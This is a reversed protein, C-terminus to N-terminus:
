KIKENITQVMKTADVFGSARHIPKSLEDKDVFIITPYYKIKYYLFFKKHEPNDEDYIFLKADKNKIAEKVKSNGWTQAKMQECPACWKAGFHYVYYKESDPSDKKKVDQDVPTAPKEEIKEEPVTKNQCAPCGPCETKHGDGQTIWGSGDCKEEVVDEDEGETMIVKALNTSIYPRHNVKLENGTFNFTIIASALLWTSLLKM